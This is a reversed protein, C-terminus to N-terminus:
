PVNTKFETFESLFYDHSSVFRDSFAEAGKNRADEHQNNMCKKGANYARCIDMYFSNKIEDLEAQLKVVIDGMEGYDKSYSELKSKLSANEALVSDTDPYNYNEQLYALIESETGNETENIIANQTEANLEFYWEMLEADTKIIAKM